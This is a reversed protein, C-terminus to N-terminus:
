KKALIIARTPAPYGEITKKHDKSNLFDPLSEFTMWSTSRQEYTTTTTIDVVRIDIFGCIELWKIITSVLPVCWVNKMKAYRKEPIIDDGFSEDVILSELVLEGDSRLISYIKKLHDIPNKRHYIVGMSFCTDFSDKAAPLDEFAIPLVWSNDIRGLLKHIAFFQCIYLPQPDIGIALKAGEGAIRWTHYGNGSGIDLILKDKLPSIHPILRDWKWDSRWETDININYIEYPGKRWPHLSMLKEHLNEPSHGSAYVGNKLDITNPTSIPIQAVINQWEVIHAYREKRLNWKIQEPLIENWHELATGTIKKYFSSYDIM